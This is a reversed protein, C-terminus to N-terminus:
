DTRAADALRTPSLLLLFPVQASASTGDGVMVAPALQGQANAGMKFFQYNRGVVSVDPYGRKGVSMAADETGILATLNGIRTMYARVSANQYAPLADIGNFGGGSTARAGDWTSLARRSDGANAKATAGVSLVWPSAAPFM